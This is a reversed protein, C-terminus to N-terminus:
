CRIPAPIALVTTGAENKVQAGCQASTGTIFVISRPYTRDLQVGSGSFSRIAKIRVTGQDFSSFLGCFRRVPYM